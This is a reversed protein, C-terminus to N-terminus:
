RHRLFFSTTLSTVGLLAAMLDIRHGVSHPRGWGFTPLISFAELVHTLAMVGFCGLGLAQLASGLNRRTLFVAASVAFFVCATVLALTGKLIPANM